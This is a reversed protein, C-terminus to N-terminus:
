WLLNRPTRRLQLRCHKALYRLYARRLQQQLKSLRYNDIDMSTDIGGCAYEEAFYWASVACTARGVVVKWLEGGYCLLKSNGCVYEAVVSEFEAGSEIDVIYIDM